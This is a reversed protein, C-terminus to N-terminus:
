QEPKPILSSLYSNIVHIGDNRPSSQQGKSDIREGSSFRASIFTSPADFIMYPTVYLPALEYMKYDAIIKQIHVLATDPVVITTDVMGRFYANSKLYAKGDDKKEIEYYTGRLMGGSVKYSYFILDGAPMTYQKTKNIEIQKKFTYILISYARDDEKRKTLNELAGEPNNSYKNIAAEVGGDISVDARRCLELIADNGKRSKQILEVFSEMEDVALKSANSVFFDPARLFMLGDAENDRRELSAVLSKLEDENLKEITDQPVVPTTNAVTKKSICSLLIVMVAM